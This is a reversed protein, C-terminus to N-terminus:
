GNEAELCYFARFSALATVFAAGALAAYDPDPSFWTWIFAWIGGAAWLGWFLAAVVRELSLTM